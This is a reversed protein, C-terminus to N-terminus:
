IVRGTEEVLIIVAVIPELRQRLSRMIV